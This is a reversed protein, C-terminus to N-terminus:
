SRSPARGPRSRDPSPRSANGTSRRPEEAEIELDYRSGPRSEYFVAVETPAHTKLFTCMHQVFAPDDVQALGWEPVSFPKGHSRALRYLKELGQWPATDSLSEDYISGGDVDVFGAGPYYLAAANGAVRPVDSALPSWIIRLRPFPNSLLEGGQVAPLGLQRLKANVASASGGHLIM